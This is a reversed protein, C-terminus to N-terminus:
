DYLRVLRWEGSQLDHALICLLGDDTVLKIYEQWAAADPAWWGTRVRWRNAIRVIPHWVGDWLFSLPVGALDITMQVPDGNPWLHTM